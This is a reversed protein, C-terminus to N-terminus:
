CRVVSVFGEKKIGSLQTAPLSVTAVFDDLPQRLNSPMPNLIGPCGYFVHSRLSRKLVGENKHDHDMCWPCAADVNRDRKQEHEEAAALLPGELKLFWTPGLNAGPTAHPGCKQIANMWRLAKRSIADSAMGYRRYCECFCEVYPQKEEMEHVLTGRGWELADLMKVVHEHADDDFVINKLDRWVGVWEFVKLISQETENYLRVTPRPSNAEAETLLDRLFPLGKELVKVACWIAALCNCEHALVAPFTLREGCYCRFITSTLPLVDASVEQGAYTSSQRVCQLLQEIRRQRCEEVFSPIRATASAFMDETLDKDLPTTCLVERFEDMLAIELITPLLTNPPQSLIFSTYMPKLWKNIRHRIHSNRDERELAERKDKMLNVLMEKNDEWEEEKLESYSQWIAEDTFDYRIFHDVERAWGLAALLDRIQARRKRYNAKKQAYIRKQQLRPFDVCARSFDRKRGMAEKQQELFDKSRESDRARNREEILNGLSELHFIPFTPRLGAENPEPPLVSAYPVLAHLDRPYPAIDRLERANPLEGWAKFKELLCSNCLRTLADFYPKVQVTESPLALCELCHESFVLDVYAPESLEKPCPPLCEESDLVPKWITNRSEAKNMLVTRLSKSTQALNLLDLPGLVVLVNCLVDLPLDLLASFAHQREPVDANSPLAHKM